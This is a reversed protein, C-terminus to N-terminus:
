FEFHLSAMYRRGTKYKGAIMDKEGLYQLYTEDLLNMANFNLSFNDSFHWSQGVRRARHLRRGVRAACRRRLRRRSLQQALRVHHAGLVSGKRLVAHLQVANKSNYPLDQGSKTQGDAYTYNAYMGFGTDGFPQQYSLTFGKVTAKGGDLPRLISTTASARRMATASAARCTCASTRIPIPRRSRTSSASSTRTPPSTTSAHGQLVGVRGAGVADAFYWEASLDFNYSKYPDLNANGGSGTLVTDNLFTNHVEQNYPAWAIVEAAAGRLVVDPAVDWAINFSPLTNNHTNNATQYSGAPPPYAPTGSYNYGSSEIETHVFRVGFNGRM